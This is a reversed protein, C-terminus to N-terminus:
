WTLTNNRHTHTGLGLQGLVESPYPGMQIFV